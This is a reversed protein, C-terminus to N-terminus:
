AAARRRRVVRVVFWAVVAIVLIPLLYGLGVIVGAIVGIFGAIGRDWANAVSPNTVEAQPEVGEEHMQVRITAFSTRDDLVQIEGQLEEIRLQTDDLANQVRITQEISVAKAMLGLLVERRAKAIRLRAQLDVYSSTVDQGHVTQVQVDGLARLDRMAAAFQGSPVRMTLSGTRDRGSSTQVFGGHLEAVDQANAFKQEFSDRPLQLTIQATRIIKTLDGMPLSPVIEAAKPGAETAVQNGITPAFLGYDATAPAPAPSASAVPRDTAGTSGTVGPAFISARREAPTHTLPNGRTVVWGLGGAVVLVFVAGTAVLVRGSPLRRPRSARRRGARESRFAADLLDERVQGVYGITADM